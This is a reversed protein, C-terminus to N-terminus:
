SSKSSDGTTDLFRDRFNDAREAADAQQMDADAQRAQADQADRDLREQQALELEHIKRKAESLEEMTEVQVRELHNLRKILERRERRCEETEARADDVEVKMEDYLARWEATASAREEAPSVLKKERPSRQILAVLVAFVGAAVAAWIATPDLAILVVALMVFERM